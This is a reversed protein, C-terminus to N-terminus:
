CGTHIRIHSVLNCRCQKSCFECSYPKEGTHICQHVAVYSPHTFYKNCIECKFHRELISIDILM